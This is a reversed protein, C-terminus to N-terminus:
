KLILPNAFDMVDSPLKYAASTLFQLWYTRVLVKFFSPSGAGRRGEREDVSHRVAVLVQAGGKLATNIPQYERQTVKTRLKSAPQRDYVM